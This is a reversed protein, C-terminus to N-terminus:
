LSSRTCSRPPRPLARRCIRHPLLNRISKGRYLVDGGDPRYLGVIVNFLTTKGAGNPGIIGLTEGEDVIFNVDHLAKLAGFTKALDQIALVNM